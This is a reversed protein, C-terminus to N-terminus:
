RAAEAAAALGRAAATPQLRHNAQQRSGSTDPLSQRSHTSLSNVSVPKFGLASPRLRIRRNSQCARSGFSAARITSPTWSICPCARSRSVSALVAKFVHDGFMGPGGFKPLLAPHTNLIRDPFAALTITGLRRLYGALFVVDVSAAVLAAAIAGDLSAPAPHTSSSLHHWPIGAIRARHLAGSTSNNSIITAVAGDIHGAVCADLICQLTTGEHSALVGIRLM